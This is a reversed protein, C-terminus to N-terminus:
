MADCLKPDSEYAVVCHMDGRGVELLGRSPDPRMKGLDYWKKIVSEAGENREALVDQLLGKRKRIRRFM